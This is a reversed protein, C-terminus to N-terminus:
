PKSECAKKVREKLPSEPASSLYSSLASPELQGQACKALMSVAEREPTLAGKAFRRAHEGAHLLAEDPKGAKLALQADRLIATEEAISAQAVPGQPAPVDTRVKRKETRAAAQAVIGEPSEAKDSAVLEEVVPVPAQEVPQVTPPKPATPVASVKPAQKTPASNQVAVVVAGTSVVGVLSVAALWKGIVSVGAAAKGASAGAAASLAQAQGAASATGQAAVTLATATMAAAGLELALKNRVRARDELTPADGRAAAEIFARTEPSLESM